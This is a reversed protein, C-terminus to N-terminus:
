GQIVVNDGPGGDLVDLGPGGVLVDDGAAGLLVDNGAGGLQVDDGDGGDSVLQLAAATLGPALLVDDGARGNVVLQDAPEGDLVTIAAALGTVDVRTADGSILAIDDGSTGNAVVRDAQGDGGGGAAGLDIDVKEVDTGSLDDVTVVDTGGLANFDVREVDNTDMTIAGPDRFFRLRSGNATMDVRENAGAGNFLMTDDGAQGEITDSGDGPDWQFVDDDAGMFATDNGRNGDVFDDGYGGVYVEAGSGGLLDDDGYGGDITTPIADTFSGGSEDIRVVDDGGRADIALTTFDARDFAHDADGDGDRDVELVSPNGARLRLVITDDRNTGEVKLQGHKIKPAKAPKSHKAAGPAPAIGAVAFATLVALSLIALRLAWGPRLDDIRTFREMTDGETDNVKM